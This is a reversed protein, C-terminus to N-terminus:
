RPHSFAMWTWSGVMVDDKAHEMELLYSVSEPTFSVSQFSKTDAFRAAASETARERGVGLHGYTM